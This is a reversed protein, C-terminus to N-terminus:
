IQVMLKNLAQFCTVNVCILYVFKEDYLLSVSGRKREGASVIKSKNTREGAKKLDNM